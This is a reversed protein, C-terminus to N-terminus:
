RSVPADIRTCCARLGAGSEPRRQDDAILVRTPMGTGGVVADSRGAALTGGCLEDAGVHRHNASWGAPEGARRQRSGIQVATAAGVSAVCVRVARIPM